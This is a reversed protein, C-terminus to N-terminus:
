KSCGNSVCLFFDREFRSQHNKKTGIDNGIHNGLSIPFFGHLKESAKKNKAKYIILSKSFLCKEFAGTKLPTTKTCVQCRPYKQANKYDGWFMSYRIDFLSGCFYSPSVEVNSIGQEINQPESFTSVFNTTVM